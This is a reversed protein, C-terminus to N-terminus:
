RTHDPPYGLGVFHKQFNDLIRPTMSHLERTDIIVVTKGKSLTDDQLKEIVHYLSALLAEACVEEDIVEGQEDLIAGGAKIMYLGAERAVGVELGAALMATQTGHGEPAGEFPLGYDLDDEPM